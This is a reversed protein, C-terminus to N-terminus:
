NKRLKQTYTVVKEVNLWDLLLFKTLAGVEKINKSLNKIILNEQNEALSRGRINPGNNLNTM